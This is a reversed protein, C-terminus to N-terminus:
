LWDIAHKQLSQDLREALFIIMGRGNMHFQSEAIVNASLTSLLLIEFCKNYFPLSDFYKALIASSQDRIM